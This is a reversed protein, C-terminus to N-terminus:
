ETKTPKSRTEFCVKDDEEWWDILGFRDDVWKLFNQLNRIKAKSRCWEYGYGKPPVGCAV